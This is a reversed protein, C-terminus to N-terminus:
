RGNVTQDHRCVHFAGPPAVQSHLLGHNHHLDLGCHGCASGVCSCRSREQSRNAQWCNSSFAYTRRSFLCSEHTVIDHVISTSHNKIASSHIQTQKADLHNTLLRRAVKEVLSFCFSSWGHSSVKIKGRKAGTM